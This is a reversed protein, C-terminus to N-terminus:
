KPLVDGLYQGTYSGKVGAVAEPTGQAVIRGGKEGGDPGLDILHDATKIVDLNHEIVIVTNKKDVLRNLVLLLRKVDDVHLGTTPEDLIFLSQGTARKSLYTSLKVRQAEGGSLTTASQGLQIYGLGVDYLTKLKGQISPVNEFFKMADEVTMDLVDSISKGNYLVELTQANYRAGRCEECPVYVDPLFHMEVRLVGDGECAECRGGSVNFSFRGPKYGRKRSEQTSAFLDRIPTFIGTYTAPNSRPTRGIPSQDVIVVKDVLGAGELKEHAGPKDTSKYLRKALAKYLIENVLTSKGSGSVGTVCCLVGLPFEVDISKLNHERAGVVKIAKGGMRRTSPVPISKKGSLYQGTLSHPNAMVEQPTGTAVIRGGHVGAGPGMDVVYDAELMTETDHEVVILTNGLDRLLKLTRILKSNDRQHLGISPEDLVYLVGTLRSGIQTALHIRQFEGGSLTSAARDLTLYDLGVDKLFGLREKVEKLIREAILEEHELLKLGDVWAICADVSLSSVDSISAGGVKVALAEPKLRKGLCSPCPSTSMFSFIWDRMGESQTQRYRRELNPIVGEWENNFEYKNSRDKSYINYRIREDSGYLLAKLQSKSLKEVPTNLTFGYKRGLSEVMQTRFGFEGGGWCAVAGEAISRSKDPIVLDPDIELKYGLGECTPCAGFPSNFSFMRPSLEQLGIGCDPCTMTRSFVLTKDTGDMDIVFSVVGNSLEFSKETAEVFRTESERDAVLRDVVVSIDHKFSKGMVISDELLREVGDVLVRVFGAAKLRELVPKHEGKKKSIVPAVVRVKSGPYLTLLTHVIEQPTSKSIRKGCEPCHPIGIRAFLLRLHGHIETVTGVTSRPNHSSTKQQIAIAPSLGEISDVDPKKMVGLFQRAYASLSEVYRRQGEAYLTDFALSSKGSGSLGTVVIFKNKPLRVSIDKLNHERGGHIVIDELM